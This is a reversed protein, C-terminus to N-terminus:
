KGYTVKVRYPGHGGAQIPEAKLPTGRRDVVFRKRSYTIVEMASPALIMMM